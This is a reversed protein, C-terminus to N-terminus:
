LDGHLWNCTRGKEMIKKFYKKNWVAVIMRLLKEIILIGFVIIVVGM